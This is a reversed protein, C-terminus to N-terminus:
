DPFSSPVRQVAEIALALQQLQHSLPEVQKGFQLGFDTPREYSSSNDLATEIDVSPRPQGSWTSLSSM